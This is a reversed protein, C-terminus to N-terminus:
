KKNKLLEKVKKVVAKATIGFEEFLEEGKGTKGFTKVDIVAGDLGVYRYFSEGNQAEIAVRVRITSPLVKEKYARSQEEFKSMAPMSVVSILIGEKELQSSADLVIKVESGSALLLVEADKNFKALYAGKEAGDVRSGLLQEVKQRTASIVTPKSDLFAVKYAGVMEKADAPRIYNLFPLTRYMVNYEVPQHTSGDEGVAISDHSLLYVVPLHMLASMRIAHHMYDSFVMFTSCIIRLGGHLAIGNCIAGMAHERIGFHINRGDLSKASFDGGNEIWVGTSPALDATGVVLNPIKDALYNIIKKSSERTAENKFEIKLHDFDVQRSYFDGLWRKLEEFETPYKKAYTNVVNDENKFMKERNLVIKQVEKRVCDSFEFPVCNVGLAKRTEELEEENLAKGHIKESNVYPTAFGIQTNIKIITPKDQKKAVTIAESIKDVNNGDQVELTSWGYARYKMLVDETFALDTSGNITINNSDYLLILKSLGLTGALSSAENSLGEMIGGDSVFCYTYHDVVKADPKNFRSALKREAIAMGVSMPVGQGLPGSTADIGLNPITMSVHGKTKAGLTRLSMLDQKSIDYGMLNLVSYLLPAAHGADLVFRDRNFHSPASASTKLHDRFLAYFIPASGMCIGTHGSKAKCIATASLFRLENVVNETINKM